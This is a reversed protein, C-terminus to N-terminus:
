GIAMVVLVTITWIVASLVCGWFIGILVNDEDTEKEPEKEGCLEKLRRLVIKKERM